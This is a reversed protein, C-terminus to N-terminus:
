IVSFLDKPSEGFYAELLLQIEELSRARQIKMRIYHGFQFNDCYYFFFRRARSLYFEPPQVERFVELFYLSNELHNVKQAERNETGTERIQRFIWPKQVAARGLMLGACPYKEMYQRAKEASDIDGNGYVPVPLDRALRAVFEYNAPRSYSEKKTRPHLTIQEVGGSVLMKCFLLLQGYNKGEGLRLKVSFRPGSKGPSVSDISKRVAEILRATEDMPKLMWSIGAGTRVIDPACCGMNIDIGTGGLGSLMAAAKALNDRDPGTLQWVMKEPSPGTRVYFKEFKTGNVFSPAHIMESYYEDPEAFTYILRRLAEHSLTAMPALALKM